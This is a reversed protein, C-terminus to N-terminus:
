KDMNKIGVKITLKISLPRVEQAGLYWIKKVVKKIYGIRGKKNGSRTGTYSLIHIL